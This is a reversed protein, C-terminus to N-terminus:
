EKSTRELLEREAEERRQAALPHWYAGRPYIWPGEGERYAVFQLMGRPDAFGTDSERVFVGRFVYEHGLELVVEPQDKWADREWEPIQFRIAGVLLARRHGRGDPDDSVWIHAQKCTPGPTCDAPPLYVEQVFARVEITAGDEGDELLPDPYERLGFVSYTGDEYRPPVTVSSFSPAPPPVVQTGEREGSLEVRNAIMRAEPLEPESAAPANAEPEDKKTGRDSAGGQKCALLTLALCVCSVSLRV